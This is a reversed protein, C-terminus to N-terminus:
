NHNIIKIHNKLELFFENASRSANNWIVITHDVYMNLLWGSKTALRNTEKKTLQKKSLVWYVQGKNNKTEYVYPMNNWSIFVLGINRDHILYLGEEKCYLVQQATNYFVKCSIICCVSIGLLFFIRVIDTSAITELNHIYNGCLWLGGILCIVFVPLFFLNRRNPYYLSINQNEIDHPLKSYRSMTNGRMIM